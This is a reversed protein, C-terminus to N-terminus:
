AVSLSFHEYCFVYFRVVCADLKFGPPIRFRQDTSYWFHRVQICCLTEYSRSQTIFYKLQVEGRGWLFLSEIRIDEFLLRVGFCNKNTDKPCAIHSRLMFLLLLSEFYQYLHKNKTMTLIFVTNIVTNHTSCFCSAQHTCHCLQGLGAM